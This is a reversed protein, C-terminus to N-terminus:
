PVRSRATAGDLNPDSHDYVEIPFRSDDDLCPPILWRRDPIVPLAHPGRVHERTCPEDGDARLPLGEIVGARFFYGRHGPGRHVVRLTWASPPLAVGSEEAFERVDGTVTLLGIAQGILEDAQEAAPREPLGAPTRVLNSTRICATCVDPGVSAWSCPRGTKQICRSRDRETCGCM